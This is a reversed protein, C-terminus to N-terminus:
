RIGIGNPPLYNTYENLIANLNDEARKLLYVQDNQCTAGQDFSAGKLAM